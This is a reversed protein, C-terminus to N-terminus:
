VVSKRDVTGAYLYSFTILAYSVAQNKTKRTPKTSQMNM